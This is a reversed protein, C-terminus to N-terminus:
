QLSPRQDICPILSCLANAEAWMPFTLVQIACMKGRYSILDPLDQSSLQGPRRGVGVEFQDIIRLAFLLKSTRKNFSSWPVNLAEQLSPFSIDQQAAKNDGAKQISM